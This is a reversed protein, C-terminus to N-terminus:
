YEICGGSSQKAGGTAVPKSLAVATTRVFAGQERGSGGGTGRM